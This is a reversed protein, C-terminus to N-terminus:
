AHWITTLLEERYLLLQSSQHTVVQESSNHNHGDIVRTIRMHYFGRLNECPEIRLKTASRWVEDGVRLAALARVNGKAVRHHIHTPEANGAITEVVGFGMFEHRTAICAEVGAYM